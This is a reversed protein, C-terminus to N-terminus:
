GYILPKDSVEAGVWVSNEGFGENRVMDPKAIKLTYGKRHLFKHWGDNGMEHGWKNYTDRTFGYASSVFNDSEFYEGKDTINHFRKDEPDYNRYDLLCVVSKDDIMDVAKKLWGEETFILDGDLKFIYDGSSVGICNKLPKEVGRNPGCNEIVYSVLKRQGLWHLYDRVRNDKSGDNHVIIEMPYGSDISYLSGLMRELHDPREYALICLSAHNM